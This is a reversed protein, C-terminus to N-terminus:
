SASFMACANLCCDSLLRCRMGNIHAHECDVREVRRRGCPRQRMSHASQSIRPAAGVSHTRSRM